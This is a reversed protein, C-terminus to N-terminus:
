KNQEGMMHVNLHPYTMEVGNADFAAKVQELLDFHLDWYDATACWVRVTYDICSDQYAGVRVFPEPKTLAKPHAGIVDSILTKVQEPPADYAASFTLDVRREEQGTYNVIKAEAIQGNPVYIMKNDPTKIKTYVLGVEVVTGSVSGADIYDDAKFPKSVLVMIGGALNSLTGQIALSVALGAVSLVAILSTMEVNLESLVLIVTILWLVVRLASRVFTRLGRDVELRQFTRDLIHLLIRMVLLCAAFLIVIRLVRELNLDQLTLWVSEMADATEEPNGLGALVPTM